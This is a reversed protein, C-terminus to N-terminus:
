LDMPQEIIRQYDELGVVPECFMASSKEAMLKDIVSLCRQCDEEEFM